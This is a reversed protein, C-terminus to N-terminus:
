RGEAKAIVALATCCECAKGGGWHRGAIDTPRNDWCPNLVDFFCHSNQSDALAKLATLLEPAAALLRANAEARGHFTQEVTALVEGAIRDDAIWFVCEEPLRLDPDTHASAPVPEFKWPGPTHTVAKETLTSENM